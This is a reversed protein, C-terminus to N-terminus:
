NLMVQGGTIPLAQGTEYQQEHLYLIATVVDEPLCGRRM